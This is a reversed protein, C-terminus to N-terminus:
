LKLIYEPEIRGQVLHIAALINGKLRGRRDIHPESWFSKVLNAMINRSILNLAFGAPVTGKRLLYIPNIIQSYGLRLGSVRGGKAGLHVGYLTNLGVVRGAKRLQYTFDIVAWSGATSKEYVVM